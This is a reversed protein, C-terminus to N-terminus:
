TPFRQKKWSIRLASDRRGSRPRSYGSRGNILEGLDTVIANMEEAQANMEEAASASEEAGSANSQIVVNIENVAQNIQVIGQAQEKSAASIESILEAVKSSTESVKNFSENSRKVFGTGEQIQKVSGEILASTNKAAEAARLSLNRVEDAVVAFGAGSEGARAAEVAANLALLNTQFAIEDITKIIKSTEESSRNINEMAKTLDAMASRSADVMEGAEKMLADAKQAHDANQNTMANFEELSSSTEEIAAAQESAGSALSQGASAVQGSAAAVEAAGSSLNDIMRAIPITISRAFILIGIMAAFLFGLGVMLITNGINRSAALFEDRDQTVFLNWGTTPVVCWAAIKDIGKFTYDEVGEENGAANEAIERMGALKSIDLDLILKSDPHILILGEKEAMFAYGTQGIKTNVINEVLIDLKLMVAVVGAFRGSTDKVASCIPLIPKGTIKSFVPSAIGPLGQGANKFYDRDSVNLEKYNGGVGDAIIIGEADAFFVVEYDTGVKRMMTELSQAVTGIKDSLLSRDGGLAAALDVIDREVSVKEVLKLEQRIMNDATSSLQRAVLSARNRATESLADASFKVSFFGIILSLLIIGFSGGTILKM